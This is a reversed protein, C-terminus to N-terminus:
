SVPPGVKPSDRALVRSATRRAASEEDQDRSFFRACRHGRALWTRRRAATPRVAPFRRPEYARARRRYARRRGDRHLARRRRTVAEQQWMQGRAVFRRVGIARVNGAEGHVRRARRRGAGSTAPGRGCECATTRQPAPPIESRFGETRYRVRPEFSGRLARGEGQSM